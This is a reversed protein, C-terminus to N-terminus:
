RARPADYQVPVTISAGVLRQALLTRARVADAFSAFRLTSLRMPGSYSAQVVSPLVGSAVVAQVAASDVQAVLVEHTSRGVVGQDNVLWTEGSAAGASKPRAAPTLIHFHQSEMQVTSGDTLASREAPTLEQGPQVPGAQACSLTAVCVTGILLLREISM